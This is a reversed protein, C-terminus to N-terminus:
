DQNVLNGGSSGNGDFIMAADATTHTGTDAFLNDDTVLDEKGYRTQEIFQSAETGVSNDNKAVGGSWDGSNEDTWISSAAADDDSGTNRDSLVVAQSNLTESWEEAALELRLNTAVGGADDLTRLMAYSYNAATIDTDEEAPTKTSDAPSLFYEPTVLAANLMAAVRHGTHAGVVNASFRTTSTAVKGQAATAIRGDNTLGPFYSKNDQAFTVMGQHIGRIQTNNSMRQASTRAAGLAPLLIAILLAIISIVVLLEILTFGLRPAPTSRKM